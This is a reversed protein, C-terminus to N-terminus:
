TSAGNPASAHAPVARSRSGTPCSRGPRRLAERVVDALIALGRDFTGPDANGFSLRLRGAPAVDECFFPEGPMFAVGAGIAAPLVDLLRPPRDSVLELWFFLGGAPREWRALDAFHLELAREFRDRRRRYAERVRSMRAEADPDALLGLVLRQSVRSAHLDAAQKLRLLPEHLDASSALYGLRLGPALTKSFSSQYVWSSRRLRSAVPVRDCPEYVLDRYPDDEFLIAGTADCAEALMRREANSYVRGTPNQFTPVCYLMAPTGAALAPRVGDIRWPVYEAGFLSFVQLAALYTPSEVAVRTGPDVVLKAVLDIGQQSGSTVIVREAGVELGRRALDAAIWERLAPEGESPGYQLDEPSLPVSALEPLASLAPLGGAFSIVDRHSALSLIERIPSSKLDRLRASLRHPM